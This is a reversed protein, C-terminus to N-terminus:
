FFSKVQKLFEKGPYKREQADKTIKSDNEDCFFRHKKRKRILENAMKLLDTVQDEMAQGTEKNNFACVRWGCKKITEKLVTNDTNKCYDRIDEAGLDEKRTFLVIMYEMVDKGFITRLTGVVAKDQATFRGLQLVLVLVTNM